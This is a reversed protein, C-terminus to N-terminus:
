FHLEHEQCIVTNKNQQVKQWHDQETLSGLYDGGGTLVRGLIAAKGPLKQKAKVQILLGTHKM